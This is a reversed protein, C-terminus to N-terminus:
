ENISVSYYTKAADYIAQRSQRIKPDSSIILPQLDGILTHSGEPCVMGADQFFREVKIITEHKIRANDQLSNIQEDIQNEISKLKKGKESNRENLIEDTERFLIQGLFGLGGVMNETDSVRKVPFLSKSISFEKPLTADEHTTGCRAKMLTDFLEGTAISQKETVQLYGYQAGRLAPAGLEKSVFNDELWSLENQYTKIKLANINRLYDGVLTQLVETLAEDTEYEALASPLAYTKVQSAFNENIKQTNEVLDLLSERSQRISKKELDIVNATKDFYADTKLINQKLDRLETEHSQVLTTIKSFFEREVFSDMEDLSDMQEAETSNMWNFVESFVSMYIFGNEIQRRIDDNLIFQAHITELRIENSNTKKKTTKSITTTTNEPLNQGYAPHTLGLCLLCACYLYLTRM